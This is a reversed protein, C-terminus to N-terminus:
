DAITGRDRRVRSYCKLERGAFTVCDCQRAFPTGSDQEPIYCSVALGLASPM